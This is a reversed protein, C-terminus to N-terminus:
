EWVYQEDWEIGYKRFFARMEDKYDVQKHHEKQGAIYARVADVGSAGISFAFYGDQWAFGRLTEDGDKIWKSSDRKINLMLDALPVTKALGIFLHVHDATGNAALLVSDMRRAIGGIYAFLGPEIAPAILPVRGKTSFTVHLLISTLTSAM